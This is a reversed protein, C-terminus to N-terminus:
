LSRSLLRGYADKGLVTRGVILSSMMGGIIGPLLASQGAAYLNHLPLKGILNFQGMKQKIGYASGDPSNLYDKYTLMSGADVVELSERYGPCVSFIHDKIAEVRAQKYEDYERPRQGRRSSTWAAVQGTFSPELICIGNRTSGDPGDPSKIIVLAPTATYAPDLLNNIDADPFLSVIAAEPNPDRSGARQTAFLSFFGVSSTTSSL